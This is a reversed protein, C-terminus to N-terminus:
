KHRRHASLDVLARQPALVAELYSPIVTRPKPKPKVLWGVIGGVVLGLAVGAIVPLAQKLMASGGAMEMLDIAEASTSESPWGHGDTGDSSAAGAAAPAPQSSPPTASPGSSSSPASTASTPTSPAAASTGATTTGTTTAETTSPATTAAGSAVAGESAGSGLRESLCQAFQGIIKGGVDVILGRGMQAPKGTINLDTKVVVKTSGSGNESLIATVKASAQGNGRSDKGKADIVATHTSEDASVYTGTGKYLMAIPGLKVKVTGTFSTDDSGTLTAGPFCPAVRPPELFATWVEGIPADVTFDHEMEM